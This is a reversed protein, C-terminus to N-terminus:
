ETINEATGGRCCFVRDLCPEQLFRRLVGAATNGGGVMAGAVRVKGEVNCTWM